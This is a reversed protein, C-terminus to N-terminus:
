SHVLNRHELLWQSIMHGVMMQLDEAVQMDDIAFHIPNDALRLSEGGKFGLIAHSELGLRRATRLAELINPSNGSGSFVILLDKPSALAELQRSFVEAYSTDNGLCTLVSTNASLATVRMGRGQPKDIGYLLDNALHVANAASGGNGCIFIQRREQWARLLADAFYAIANWDCAAYAGNLRAMYADGQEREFVSRAPVAVPARLEPTPMSVLQKAIGTIGFFMPGWQWSSLTQGVHKATEPTIIEAMANSHQAFSPGRRALGIRFM